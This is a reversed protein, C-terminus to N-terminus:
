GGFKKMFRELHVVAREHTGKGIRGKEDHAEVDFKVTRGDIETVVATATVKMGKPTAMDHTINVMTGVSVHGDELHNKICDAAAGEMLAIMMPTSFVDVQGSKLAIAVNKDDVTTDLTGTQGVFIGM